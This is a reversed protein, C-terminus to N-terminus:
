THRHTGHVLMHSGDDGSWEKIMGESGSFIKGDVGVALSRVCDTHAELLRPHIAASEYAAWDPWEM